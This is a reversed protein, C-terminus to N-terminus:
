YGYSLQIFKEILIVHLGDTCLQCGCRDFNKLSLQCGRDYNYRRLM